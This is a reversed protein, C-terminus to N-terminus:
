GCDSGILHVSQTLAFPRDSSGYAQAKCPVVSLVSRYTSRNNGPRQLARGPEFSMGFRNRCPRSYCSMLVSFGIHLLRNLQESRCREPLRSTPKFDCQEALPGRPLLGAITSSTFSVLREAASSTCLPDESYNSQCLADSQRDLSAGFKCRRCRKRM